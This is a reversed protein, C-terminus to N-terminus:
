GDSGPVTHLSVCVHPSHIVHPTDLALHRLWKQVCTTATLPHARLRTSSTALQPLNERVLHRAPLSVDFQSRRGDAAVAPHPEVADGNEEGGESDESSSSNLLPEEEGEMEEEAGGGGLARRFLDMAATQQRQHLSTMVGSRMRM